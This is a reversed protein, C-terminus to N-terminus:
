RSSFVELFETVWGLVPVDGMWGGGEDWDSTRSRM